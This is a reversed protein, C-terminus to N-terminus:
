SLGELETRLRELGRVWLMRVAGSSRGMKDAIDAFKAEELHRMVIVERYDAPLQALADALIVAHERRAAKASPSSVSGALVRDIRMSSRDLEDELSRHQNLDRKEARHHKLLNALNHALITRLWSMLQRETTGNFQPFDCSAKILTEQVLDSADLHVRLNSGIQTRALLRLYNRYMELLRSLPEPNGGKAQVLLAAQCQFLESM